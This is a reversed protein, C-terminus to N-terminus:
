FAIHASSSDKIFVAVLSSEESAGLARPIFARGTITEWATIYKSAVEVRV